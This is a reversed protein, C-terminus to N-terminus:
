GRRRAPIGTLRSRAADGGELLYVFLAAVTLDATTGPNLPPRANRLRGDLTAIMRRGRETLVGGAKLIAAASRSVSRAAGTGHRRTILTDPRAGLITLFTQVVAQELPLHRARLRHLAPLGVSLTTQFGTAYERAVDDRRAALRMCGLLTRTPTGGADERSVRGLGGPQALRIAQYALVADRRDLDRLVRGLRERMTGRGSLLAARTLPALLLVIGLNTNTAVQRRTCRIADLILRGVRPSRSRRFAPGISTASLILDRYTLGPLDRGRGANGPKPAIADLLCAIQAAAAIAAPDPRGPRRRRAAAPEAIARRM